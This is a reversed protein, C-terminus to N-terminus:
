RRSGKLVFRPHKGVEELQLTTQALVHKWQDFLGVERTGLLQHTAFLTDKGNLNQKNEEKFYCM